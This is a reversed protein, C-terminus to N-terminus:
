VGLIAKVRLKIPNATLPSLWNPPGYDYLGFVNIRSMLGPHEAALDALLDQMNQELVDEDARSYVLFRTDSEVFYSILLKLRERPGTGDEQRFGSYHIMILDPDFRLIEEDRHWDPGIYKTKHSTKYDM